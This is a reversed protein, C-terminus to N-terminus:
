DSEPENEEESPTVPQLSPTLPGERWHWHFYLPPEVDLINGAELDILEIEFDFDIGDTPNVNGHQGHTVFDWFGYSDKRAIVLERIEGPELVIDSTPSELWVLPSLLTTTGDCKYKAQARVRIPKNSAGRVALNLIQIVISFGSGTGDFLHTFMKAKHDYQIHTIGRAQLRVKAQKEPPILTALEREKDKAALESRLRSNEAFQEHFAKSNDEARKKEASLEHFTNVLKQQAITAKELNAISEEKATIVEQTKISIDDHLSQELEISSRKVKEQQAYIRSATFAGHWAWTLLLLALYGGIAVLMFEGFHERTIWGRMWGYLVGIGSGALSLFLDQTKGAKVASWWERYWAIHYEWWMRLSNQREEPM